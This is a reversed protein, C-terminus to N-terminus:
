EQLFLDMIVAEPPFPCIQRVKIALNPVLLELITQKHTYNFFNNYAQVCVHFLSIQIKLILGNYTMVISVNGNYTTVNEM